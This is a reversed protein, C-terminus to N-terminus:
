AKVYVKVREIGNWLYGSPNWGPQEPQVRGMSDSARVKLTYAGPKVPKWFYNWMRWSYQARDRGLAAAQWSRGEDASIEVKTVDADGAWALGSLQLAQGAAVQRGDAPRTFISKVNLRTIPTTDGVVDGGPTVPNVPLRYGPRMFNGDFEKDLVRVEDGREILASALNSGIFGAGGTVLVRTM